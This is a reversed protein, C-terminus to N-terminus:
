VTSVAGAQMQKAWARLHTADDRFDDFQVTRRQEFLPRIARLDAGANIAVGHLPIADRHGIWLVKGSAPDGRRVYELDPAPLGLVQINHKGQDTWFWPVVPAPLPAGLMAAAATRAQENANQWSELRTPAAQGPRQQSTCDGCAFVHENSTRCSADVLIGGGAAIELGAGRALADNPSLGIAVVVEDVELDGTDTAVRMRGGPLSRVGHLSAGLLLRAGAERLGSALWASAEPPLFRDLLCTARELVTVAAGASLASNAIELGLFGGGLIAIKPKGQLAARLRRADDLTRVYHVQPHGAPASALTNAEGGTAVLCMDYPLVQGGALRVQRKSLDLATADSNSLLDIDGLAWAEPALVDLSPEEAAVLVAKSLPPREYPKHRERGLMTIRGRYGQERLARAAVAAAQGAGVIVVGPSTM